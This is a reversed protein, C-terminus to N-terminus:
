WNDDWEDKGKGTATAGGAEGHEKGASASTEGSAPTTSNALSSAAPSKRM